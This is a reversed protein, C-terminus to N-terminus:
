TNMSNEELNETELVLQDLSKNKHLEIITVESAKLSLSYSFVFSIIFILRIFM